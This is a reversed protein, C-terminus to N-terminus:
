TPAIKPDYQAIDFEPWGSSSPAPGSWGGFSLATGVFSGGDLAEAGGLRPTPGINPSM